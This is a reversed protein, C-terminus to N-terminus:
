PLLMALRKLLAPGSPPLAAGRTVHGNSVIECGSLGVRVPDDPADPYSFLVLEASGSDAPCATVGSMSRLDNFDHTLLTVQSLQSVLRERAVQGSDSDTPPKSGVRISNPSQHYSCLLAAVAGPPVLATM